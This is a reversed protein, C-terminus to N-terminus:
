CQGGAGWLSARHGGCGWPGVGEEGLGAQRGPLPAAEAGGPGPVGPDPVKWARVEELLDPIPSGQM